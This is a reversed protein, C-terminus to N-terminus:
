HMTARHSANHQPAICTQTQSPIRMADRRVAGRRVAGRRVAGRRAASCWM